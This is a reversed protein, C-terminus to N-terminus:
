KRSGFGWPDVIDGGPQPTRAGAGGAADGGLGPRSGLHREIRGLQEVIQANRADVAAILRRVDDPRAGARGPPSASEAVTAALLTARAREERTLREALEANQAGLKQIQAQLQGQYAETRQQAEYLQQGLQALQWQLARIQQDKQTAARHAEELQLATKEYLSTEVCGTAGLALAGTVAALSVLLPRLTSRAM